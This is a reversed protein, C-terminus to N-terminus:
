ETVLPFGANTWGTTGGALTRVNPYGLMQLLMMAMSSRHTPNDYVVIPTDLEAPLQDLSTMLASLPIHVAGEIRGEAVEGETRVDILTIESEVLEANLADARVIFYGDPIAQMYADVAAFAEANVEPATGATAEVPVDSVPLNSNTWANTGGLLSRVNTYGLMALAQAALASRHGSGCYIVINTDQAPLLALNQTLTQLPVNIAGELHGEAYEDATRVDVLFPAADSAVETELDPVRVANFNGPLGAVYDTAYAVLDFEAEVTEPAPAAGVVPLGTAVWANIGGVLNRVDTYGLLNLFVTAIGGRYSSACYIVIPTSLDEPLEGLRSVFENIWIHQAGEIYGVTDWEEQSRVDILVLEREVLEAALDPSRVLGFGEPLNSLYADIAAFVDANFEPAEGLEAAPPLAGDQVIPFEEGVWAGFGGALTRANNYGLMNLSAQALMARAGGQCVVVIEADLDPLAALNASLERVPIHISGELYGNTELETAERVDLLVIEREILASGLEEASITGYKPPFNASYEEMRELVADSQATVPLISAALLAIILLSLLKKM